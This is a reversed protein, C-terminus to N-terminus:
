RQGGKKPKPLWKIFQDGTGQQFPGGAEYSTSYVDRRVVGRALTGDALAQAQRRWPSGAHDHTAPASNGARGNQAIRSM